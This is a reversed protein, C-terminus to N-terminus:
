DRTRDLLTGLFLAMGKNVPAVESPYVLFEVHGDMYLVNSGGPVHNFYKVKTSLTDFMVWVHSQAVAHQEPNNVDTIMFREIGESLRYITDSGANGMALPGIPTSLPDVKKDTDVVRFSAIYPDEGAIRRSIVERVTAMLLAVFQYPGSADPDDLIFRDSVRPILELLEGLSIFAEPPQDDGCKDLLYGLYAYSVDIEEPDQYITWEGNEDKLDDVSSNPDSPCVAIAPDNFYDPYISSVMPGIAIDASRLSHARFQLPPFKNGDSEDAYMKFIYAWQKLNSQCSRRRAAERARSLAPLLISALISIIAIVVLLEILTFGRQEKNMSTERAILSGFTVDGVAKASKGCLDWKLVVKRGNKSGGCRLLTESCATAM